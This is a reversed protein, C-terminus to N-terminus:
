LGRVVLRTSREDKYLETVEGADLIRALADPRRRYYRARLDLCVLGKRALTQAMLDAYDDIPYHFGCSYYSTVMDARIGQMAGPDKAPNIAIVKTKAVGNDHLLARADALDAYGSGEVSWFHYQESSQEIDVLTFEPEFDQHLFLDPLAQGCGIDIVSKPAIGIEDLYKKLPLYERYAELLAGDFIDRRRARAEGLLPASNGAMWAKRSAPSIQKTRQFGLLAISTNSLTSDSFGMKGTDKFSALTDVAIRELM